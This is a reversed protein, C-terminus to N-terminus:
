GKFTGKLGPKLFMEGAVATIAATLGIILAIRFQRPTLM